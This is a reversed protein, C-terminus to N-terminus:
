FRYGLGLTVVPYYKFNSLDSELQAEEKAVEALFTPDNSLTGGTSTLDVRPSGQFLVGLDASFSLGKKASSAGWGIGLYPASSKLSLRSSLTGVQASTYSVDGITYTSVVNATGDLKNGNHFLGASVRFGGQFPRWDLLLKESSLGLTFTYDIGSEVANYDYDFRSLGARVDFSRGLSHSFDLGFGLSSVNISVMNDQATAIAPLLALVGSLIINKNM